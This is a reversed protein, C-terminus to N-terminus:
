GEKAGRCLGVLGFEVPRLEKGEVSEGEGLALAEGEGVSPEERESLRALGEGSELLEKDSVPPEDDSPLNGKGEDVVGGPGREEGDVRFPCNELVIPKIKDASVREDDMVGVVPPLRVGWIVFTAVPVLGNGSVIEVWLASMMEPEGERELAVPGKGLLTPVPLLGKGSVIGVWLGTMIEPEGERILLGLEVVFPGPGM